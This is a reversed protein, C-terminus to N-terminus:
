GPLLRAPGPLPRVRRSGPLRAQAPLGPRPRAPNRAQSRLDFGPPLRVSASAFIRRAPNPATAGEGPKARGLLGAFDAEGPKACNRGHATQPRAPNSQLKPPRQGLAPHGFPKKRPM